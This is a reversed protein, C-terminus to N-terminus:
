RLVFGALVIRGSNIGQGVFSYQGPPDSDFTRFGILVGGDPGAIAQYPLARTGGGPLNIWLSVTEGPVYNRAEFGLTEGPRAPSPYVRGTAIANPFSACAQSDGEPVPRPPPANPPLGPRLQCPALDVGLLGLDVGRGNWEFRAREFYQVTRQVGSPLLEQVEESLPFGFIALGGRTEWFQKFGGQITHGTEPFYRRTATNPVPAVRPFGLGRARMYESGVLGLQVFASTGSGSVELRAREFFQVVKGDSNRIYEETIPFGFIALGGNREWYDLFAGRVYHGTQGFYVIRVQTQAQAPAAPVLGAVM